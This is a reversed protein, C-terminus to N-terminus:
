DALNAIGTIEDDDDPKKEGKMFMLFRLNGDLEEEDIGCDWLGGKQDDNQECIPCGWGYSHKFHYVVRCRM